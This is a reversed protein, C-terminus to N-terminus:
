AFRDASVDLEGFAHRVADTFADALPMTAVAVPLDDLCTADLLAPALAPAVLYSALEGQARRPVVSSILVGQRVRWQSLGVLKAGGITLEGPGLGAFCAAAGQDARLVGGRHVEPQVGLSELASRWCDGVRCAM